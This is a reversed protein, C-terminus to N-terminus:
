KRSKPRMAAPQKACALMFLTVRVLWPVHLSPVLAVRRALVAVVVAIERQELM